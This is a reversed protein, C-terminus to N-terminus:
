ASGSHLQQCLSLQSRHGPLKLPLWIKLLPIFWVQCKPSVPKHRKFKLSPTSPTWRWMSAEGLFLPHAKLIRLSPQCQGGWGQVVWVRAGCSWGSCYGWLVESCAASCYNIHGRSTHNSCSLMPELVRCEKKCVEELSVAWLKVIWAKSRGEEVDALPKELHASSSHTSWLQLGTIGGGVGVWNV